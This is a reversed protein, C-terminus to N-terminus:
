VKRFLVFEANVPGIYRYGDAYLKAVIDLEQLATCNKSTCVYACSKDNSYTLIDEDTVKECTCEELVEGCEDCADECTCESLVEGCDDCTEEEEDGCIHDEFHKPCYCLSCDECEALEDDNCKPYCKDCLILPNTCGEADCKYETGFFGIKTKCKTCNSM